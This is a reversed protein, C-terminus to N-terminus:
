PLIMAPLQFCLRELILKIIKDIGQTKVLAIVANEFNLYRGAQFGVALAEPSLLRRAADTQVMIGGHGATSVSYVGTCLTDCRVVVGWPSDSPERYMM